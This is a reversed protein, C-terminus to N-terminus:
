KSRKNRIIISGKSYTASTHVAGQGDKIIKGTSKHIILSFMQSCCLPRTIKLQVYTTPHPCLRTNKLWALDCVIRTSKKPIMRLSVKPLVAFFEAITSSHTKLRALYEQILTPWTRPVALWTLKQVFHNKVCYRIFSCLHICVCCLKPLTPMRSFISLKPMEQLSHHFHNHRINLSSIKPLGIYLYIVSLCIFLQIILCLVNSLAGRQYFTAIILYDM